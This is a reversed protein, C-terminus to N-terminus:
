PEVLIKGGKGKQAYKMPTFIEKSPCYAAQSATKRCHFGVRGDYTESKQSM